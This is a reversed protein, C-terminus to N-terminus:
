QKKAPVLWAFFRKTKYAAKEWRNSYPLSRSDPVAGANAFLNEHHEEYWAEWESPICDGTHGTLRILADECARVAAFDADRLGEILAKVTEDAPYYGLGRAAAMRTHREGDTKLRQILTERVEDAHEASVDGRAALDALAATAEWSTLRDPPRIEQPPHKEYNLIKLMTACTGADGSKVLGRIAVCRTHPDSELTAIATMGKVAWVTDYQKSEAVRVLADRRLDADSSSVAILMQQQPTRRPRFLKKVAADLNADFKIGGCGTM